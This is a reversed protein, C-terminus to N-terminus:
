SKKARKIYQKPSFTAVEDRKNRNSVSWTAASDSKMIKDPANRANKNVTASYRMTALVEPNARDMAEIKFTHPLHDSQKYTLVWSVFSDLAESLSM